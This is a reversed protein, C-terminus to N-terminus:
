AQVDVVLGIKVAQVVRLVDWNTLRICGDTEDQGIRGPEPTGHIGWHPKNLGLWYLGVPNNPGPAIVLRTGAPPSGKLMAPTVAFMPNKVASKIEQRGVPLPDSASGISISLAALPQGAKDLLFLLRESKDIRLSTAPAAPRAGGLAPVVIEDGARFASTPNIARLWAPSCHFKEGLAEHLTTYDLANLRTRGLMDPPLRIFPGVTDKHTITYNELVPGPAKATLAKWTSEDLRGSPDLKSAAQFAAVIRRMNTGFTGDIEGASFWLRDLLVQARVVAEGHDGEALAPADTAANLQRMLAAGGLAGATAAAAAPKTKAVAAPFAASAALWGLLQRRAILTTIHM